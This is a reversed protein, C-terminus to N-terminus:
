KQVLQYRGLYIRGFHIVLGLYFLVEFTERWLSLFHLTDFFDPILGWKDYLNLISPGGSYLARDGYPNFILTPIFYIVEQGRFCFLNWWDSDITKSWTQKTAWKRFLWSGTAYVFALVYLYIFIENVGELNHVNFEAQYNAELDPYVFPLRGEFWSTEEGALFIFVIAALLYAGRLLWQKNKGLALLATVLVGGLLIVVQLWEMFNNDYTGDRNLSIQNFTERFYNQLFFCVLLFSFFVFTPYYKYLQKQTSTILTFFFSLGLLETLALHNLRLTAFIYNAHTFSDLLFLALAAVVAAPMIYKKNLEVLTWKSQDPQILLRYILTLSLYIAIWQWLDFYFYNGIVGPYKLLEVGIMTLVGAYAVTFIQQLLHSKSIM